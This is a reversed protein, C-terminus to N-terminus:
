YIKLNFGVSYKVLVAQLRFRAPSTHAMIRTCAKKSCHPRIL